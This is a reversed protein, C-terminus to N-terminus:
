TSETKNSALEQRLEAVQWHLPPQCALFSSPLWSGTTSHCIASYCACLVFQQRSGLRFVYPVVQLRCPAQKPRMGGTCRALHHIAPQLAGAEGASSHKSAHLLCMRVCINLM